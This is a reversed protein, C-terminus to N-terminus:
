VQQSAGIPRRQQVRAAERRGIDHRFVKGDYQISEATQRSIRQAESFTTGLGTATLVRGGDVRLAGDEGRSTGAHFVIAGLPLADPV